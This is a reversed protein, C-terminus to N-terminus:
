PDFIPVVERPRVDSDDRRVRLCRAATPPAKKSGPAPREVMPAAILILGLVENGPDVLAAWREFRSRPTRGDIKGPPPEAVNEESPFVLRHERHMLRATALKLDHPWGLADQRLCWDCHDILRDFCSARAARRFG